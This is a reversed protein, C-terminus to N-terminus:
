EVGNVLMPTAQLQLGIEIDLESESERVQPVVGLLHIKTINPQIAMKVVATLGLYGTM